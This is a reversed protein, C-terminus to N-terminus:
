FSPLKIHIMNNELDIKTVHEEDFPVLYSNSLELIDGGGFNHVAKVKLDTSSEHLVCAKMNELDQVYFLNEDQKKIPPLSEFYVTPDKGLLEQLEEKSSIGEISCLYFFKKLKSVIRIKNDRSDRISLNLDKIQLAVRVLGKCGHASLLKGAVYRNM